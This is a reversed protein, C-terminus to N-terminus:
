AAAPDDKLRQEFRAKPEFECNTDAIAKGSYARIRCREVYSDGPLLLGVFISRGNLDMVDLLACGSRVHVIDTAINGENFLSTGKRVIKEHGHQQHRELTKNESM